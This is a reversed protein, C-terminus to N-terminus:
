EEIVKILRYRVATQRYASLAGLFACLASLLALVQYERVFVPFLTLAKWWSEAGQKTQWHIWCVEALVFAVASAGALFWGVLRSPHTIIKRGVYGAM